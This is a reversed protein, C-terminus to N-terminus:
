GQKQKLVQSAPCLQHILILRGHVRDILRLFADCVDDFQPWDRELVFDFRCAAFSRCFYRHQSHQPAEMQAWPRSFEVHLSHPPADMQACPRCIDLAAPRGDACVAPLHRTRRPTWRRGRGCCTGICLVLCFAQRQQSKLLALHRDVSAGPAPRMSRQDEAAGEQPVIRRPPNRFSPPLPGRRRAPVAKFARAARGVRGRGGWAGGGAGHSGARGVRGARGLRHRREPRGLAATATSSHQAPPGGSRM